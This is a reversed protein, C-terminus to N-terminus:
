PKIWETKKPKYHPLGVQMIYGAAQTKGSRMDMVGNSNWFSFRSCDSESTNYRDAYLLYADNLTAEAEKINEYAYVMVPVLEDSFYDRELIIVAYKEDM